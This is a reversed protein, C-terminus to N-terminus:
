WVKRRPNSAPIIGSHAIMNFIEKLIFDLHFGSSIWDSDM